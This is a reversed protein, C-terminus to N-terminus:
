QTFAAEGKAGGGDPVARFNRMDVFFFDRHNIKLWGTTWGLPLALWQDFKGL